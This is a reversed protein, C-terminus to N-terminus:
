PKRFGHRAFIERAKEGQLFAFFGGAGDGPTASLLAAPYLIPPHSEPPITAAVRVRDSALADTEYVVGLPAEGAEVLALAARVNEAPAIRNKLGDWLGLSEFAAKGYRGAPVADPDAMAVRSGPPLALLLDAPHDLDVALPKAEPTILVLRNSLLDHREGKVFGGDVLVDMWEQDASIFIDAPAGNEIQRALASSGAFSLVPAPHGEAEWATGAESLADQMSAAALVLVGEPEKSCGSLLLVAAFMALIPSFLRMACAINRGIHGTWRRSERKIPPAVQAVM